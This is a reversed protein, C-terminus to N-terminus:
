RQFTPVLDATAEAFPDGVECSPASKPTGRKNRHYSKDEKRCVCLVFKVITRLHIKCADLVQAPGFIGRWAARQDTLRLFTISRSLSGFFQWAKM